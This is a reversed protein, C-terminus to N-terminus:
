IMAGAFDNKSNEKTVLETEPLQMGAKKLLENVSQVAGHTYIKGIRSDLMHIIRQAKGLSYGCLVSAFGKQRNAKWWNNIDAAIEKQPKWKYIPLGFTSETVFTNCKVPEFADSFGDNEIKYDGSVVAVEGKHELRVQASGPIHGAPVLSLRVGNITIVEGFEASKANIDSGLRHKIIPVTIRHALYKKAGRRAHDSHGHTIVAKDVKGWPDIYIDAPPCYIGQKTYKLLKSNM